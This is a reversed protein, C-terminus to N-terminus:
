PQTPEVSQQSPDVSAVRSTDAPNSLAIRERWAAELEDFSGGYHRVLSAEWGIRGGDRAFELLRQRGGQSVLFETLSYSSAYFCVLQRYDQPYEEVLFLENLPMLTESSLMQAVTLHQRTRQTQSESLLAVGEDVWRPLPHRLSVALVVHAVEHPLLYEVIRDLPGRVTIRVNEIRGRYRDYVVKGDGGYDREEVFIQVPKDWVPLDGGLWQHAFSSRAEEAAAAVGRAVADTAATVVFNASAYSEQGQGQGQGAEVSAACLTATAPLVLLATVRRAFCPRAQSVLDKMTAPNNHSM